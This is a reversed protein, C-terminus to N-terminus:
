SIELIELGVLLFHSVSQVLVDAAKGHLAILKGIDHFCVHDPCEDGAHGIFCEDVLESTALWSCRPLQDVGRCAIGGALLGNSCDEAFVLTLILSFGHVLSLVVTLSPFALLVTPPAMLTFEDCRDIPDM